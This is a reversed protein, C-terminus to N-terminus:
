RSSLSKSVLQREAYYENLEKHCIKKNLNRVLYKSKEKRNLKQMKELGDFYDDYLEGGHALIKYKNNKM